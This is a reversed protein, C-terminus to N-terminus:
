SLIKLEDRFTVMKQELTDKCSYPIAAYFPYEM